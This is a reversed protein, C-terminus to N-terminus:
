KRNKRAKRRSKKSKGSNYEWQRGSRSRWQDLEEDGFSTREIKKRLARPVDHISNVKLKLNLDQELQRISEGKTGVM